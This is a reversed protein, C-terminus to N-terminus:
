IIIAAVALLAQVLVAFAAAKFLVCKEIIISELQEVEQRIGSAPDAVVRKYSSNLGLISTIWVTLPLAKEPKSLPGRPIVASILSIMAILSAFGWMWTLVVKGCCLVGFSPPNLALYGAVAILFVCKQDIARIVEQRDQRDALAQTENEQM